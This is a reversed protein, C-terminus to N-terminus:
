VLECFGLIQSISGVRQARFVSKEKEQGCGGGWRELVWMFCRQSIGLSGALGHPSVSSAAAERPSHCPGPPTCPVHRERSTVKVGHGLAGVCRCLGESSTLGFKLALLASISGVSSSVSTCFPWHGRWPWIEWCILPLSWLSVVLLPYHANDRDADSHPWAFRWGSQRRLVLWPCCEHFTKTKLSWNFDYLM